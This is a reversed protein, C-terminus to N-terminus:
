KGPPLGLDTRSVYSKESVHLRDYEAAKPTLVDIESAMRDIEDLSARLLERAGEDMVMRKVDIFSGTKRISPLVEHTVWRQFAKAERKNSRLLLNYLGPENIVWMYREQGSVFIKRTLKEDDELRKVVKNVDYLEVADCVDKAVWWPEGKEDILVRVPTNKFNFTSLNNTM